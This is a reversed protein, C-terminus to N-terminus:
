FPLDSCEDNPVEYFKEQQYEPGQPMPPYQGVDEIEDVDDILDKQESIQGIKFEVLRTNRGGFWRLVSYTKKGTRKDVGVTILGQEALYKM